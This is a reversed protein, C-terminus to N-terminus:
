APQAEVEFTMGARRLREVLKMGMSSAPTLVGGKAEVGDFALCLASEALMRATAAYGPDGKAAVRGKLRVERGARPSKGEGLLTAEFFGKEREEASPGQGPAPLVKSELLKRLPKVQVAGFFGGLGVTMSTARALGKAGRGYSAVESYRFDRGWPYGLLAHSRRVVRTNVSAMFFPGTWQGLEESYRVSTLDREGPGRQTPDPDLAHPNLLVRRVSRDAAVEDLAQLLSAVTGGSAGGRMPGMYLRVSGLHGGYEQRMHEQMMLVGLDSPISDFGCTHVIRAGSARAQEHHADIMRRMWQVEGTLDCYDTGARVCAAVLENGYRAYPGVTTCVVRTRAVLADLSAADKADAMLLPLEACAPVRAALGKRVEELKARDRGALAWRARHTDQTRALYEAVLRGTFGTAGWVVIDFEAGPKSM